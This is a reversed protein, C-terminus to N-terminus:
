LFTINEFTEKGSKNKKLNKRELIMIKLHEQDSINMELIQKKLITTTFNEKEYNARKLINKNQNTRKLDKMTLITM